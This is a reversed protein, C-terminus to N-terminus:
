PAPQWEPTSSREFRICNNKHCAKVHTFPNVQYCSGAFVVSTTLAVTDYVNAGNSNTWLLNGNALEYIGRPNGSAPLTTLIAGTNADLKVLTNSTFTSCWVNGDSAQSITHALNVATSDHFLGVSIGNTTYRHVDNGAAFSAVLLDGQWAMVSFPSPSNSLALTNVYNGAPDFVVLSDATAGNNTGDNTVYVLGNVFAMGRINDLGGGALTPGMTGLVNGCADYRVIRDGTQESVWLDGLVDIASVQVTAPVPFYNTDVVSGDVPSFAILRDSTADYTVLVQQASLASAFAAAVVFALSPIRRTM